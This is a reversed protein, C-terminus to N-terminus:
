VNNCLYLFIKNGTILGIFIPILLLAYAICVYALMEIFRYLAGDLCLILFLCSLILMFIFITVKFMQATEIVAKPKKLISFILFYSFFALLFLLPTLYLLVEM